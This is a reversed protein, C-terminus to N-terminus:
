AANAAAAAAGAKKGEVTRSHVFAPFGFMVVGVGLMAWDLGEFNPNSGGLVIAMTPYQAAAALCSVTGVGIGYVKGFSAGGFVGMSYATMLSYNWARFCGFALFAVYLSWDPRTVLLGFTLVGLANVLALGAAMGHTDIFRGFSPTLAVSILILFNFVRVLREAHSADRGDANYLMQETVSGLVLMTRYVTFLGWVALAIFARSEVQRRFPKGSEDLRAGYQPSQAGVLGDENGEGGEAASSIILKKLPPSLHGAWLTENTLALYVLGLAAMALFLSQTSAGERHILELVTFTVTSADFSCNILSHVLGFHDDAFYEALVFHSLFNAMGGISVLCAAPVYADFTKSDAFAFLLCGASFVCMGVARTWKAGKVDMLPGWIMGGLPVCFAGATYVANLRLAQADCGSRDDDCLEAYTGERRLAISLSSWGFMVGTATLVEVCSLMVLAWRRTPLLSAAM